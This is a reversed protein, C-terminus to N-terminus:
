AHFPIQIQLKCYASTEKPPPRSLPPPPVRCLLSLPFIPSVPCHHRQAHCPCTCVHASPAKPHTHRHTHVQRGPRTPAQTHTHRAVGLPGREMPSRRLHMRHGGGQQRCPRGLWCPATSSGRSRGAAQFAALLIRLWVYSNLSTESFSSTKSPKSVVAQGGSAPLHIVRRRVKATSAPALSQTVRAPQHLVSFPRVPAASSGSSTFPLSSATPSSPPAPPTPGLPPCIQPRVEAPSQTQKQRWRSHTHSYFFAVLEDGDRHLRM